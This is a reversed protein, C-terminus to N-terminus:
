KLECENPSAFRYTQLVSSIENELYFLLRKKLRSKQKRENRDGM